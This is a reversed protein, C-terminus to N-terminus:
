GATSEKSAQLQRPSYGFQKKFAFSFHSLDEFGLDLYIDSATKPEHTLLFHAEDLRRKVLWAAPSNNFITKFDRKFASLSRGTLYAFRDLSVNFKYHANMFSELDLRGPPRFDFLVAGLMPQQQLLLLLLEERKLDAFAPDIRGNGQYYPTLSQIFAHLRDDMDIRMFADTPPKEAHSIQAAHRDMFSRLLPEDLVVAIKEFQGDVPQKSYRALRNKRILCAGGTNLRYHRHGDFGEIDGQVLYLFLHEPIFQEPSIDPGVYCSKISTQLMM